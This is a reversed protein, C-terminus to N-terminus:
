GNATGRRIDGRILATREWFGQVGFTVESGNLILHGDESLSFVAHTIRQRERQEVDLINGGIHPLASIIGEIM